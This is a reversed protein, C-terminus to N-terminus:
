FYFSYYRRCAPILIRMTYSTGDYPIYILCWWQACRVIWDQLSCYLGSFCSHQMWVVPCCLSPVSFLLRISCKHGFLTMLTLLHSRSGENSESMEIVRHKEWSRYLVTNQQAEYQLQNKIWYLLGRGVCPVASYQQKSSAKEAWSSAPYEVYVTCCVALLLWTIHNSYLLYLLWISLSKILWNPRSM